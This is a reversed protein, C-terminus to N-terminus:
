PTRKGQVRHYSEIAVVMIIGCIAIEFPLSILSKVARGTLVVPYPNGYLVHLWLSTLPLEVLVVGLFRAAAMRILMEKRGSLHRYLLYGFIIGVLIRDLTFGFFYPGRPFTIFGVVDGIGGVFAGGIPGYLAAAIAIPIFSFSIRIHEVPQFSFLNLVVYLASMLAIVVITHTKKLELASSKLTDVFFNM